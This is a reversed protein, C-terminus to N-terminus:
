WPRDNRYKMSADIWWKVIHEALAHSNLTVQHGNIAGAWGSSGDPLLEHDFRQTVYSKPPDWHSVGPFPPHGQWVSCVLSSEDLTNSFRCQWAVSLAPGTSLLAVVYKAAKFTVGLSPATSVLQTALSSLEAVVKEFELSAGKVGAESTKYKKRREAFQLEREARAARSEVTEPKPIGGLGQVRAEIVSAAGVLGWRDLGVWLQTKPLWRPVAPQSDLPIFVVFDYGEKFARNRIATEEIRTWPTHGWKERYLVVVLRSKEAFVSNFTSEGDTGALQEQQRSYLFVSMRESLMDALQTALPEDDAVFSIAVDYEYNEGSM